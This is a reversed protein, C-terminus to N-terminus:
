KFALRLATAGNAVFMNSNNELVQAVALAEKKYGLMLLAKARNLSTPGHDPAIKLARNLYKISDTANGIELLLGGLTQLDYPNNSHLAVLARFYILASNYQGEKMFIYGTYRLNNIVDQNWGLM